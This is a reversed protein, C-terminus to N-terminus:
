LREMECSVVEGNRVVYTIKHTDRIGECNSFEEGFRGYVVHTVETVEVRYALTVFSTWAHNIVSRDTLHQKLNGDGDLCVVEISQRDILGNPRKKEGWVIWPGFKKM